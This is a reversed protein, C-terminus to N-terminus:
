KSMIIINYQINRYDIHEISQMTNANEYENLQANVCANKRKIATSIENLNKRNNIKRMKEDIEEIEM